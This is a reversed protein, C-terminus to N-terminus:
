SHWVAPATSPSSCAPRSSWRRSRRRDPRASAHRRPRGGRRARAPTTDEEEEADDEADDLWGEARADDYRERQVPDSLVNWAKNLRAREAQSAGDLQDRYASKITDKDAGPEVGLLDYYDSM